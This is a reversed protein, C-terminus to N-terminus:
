NYLEAVSFFDASYANMVMTMEAEEAEGVFLNFIESSVADHLSDWDFGDEQAPLTAVSTSIFQIERYVLAKPNPVYNM